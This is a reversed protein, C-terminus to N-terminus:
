VFLFKFEVGKKELFSNLHFTKVIKLKMLLFKKLCWISVSYIDATLYLLGSGRSGYGRCKGGGYCKDDIMIIYTQHDKRCCKLPQLALPM